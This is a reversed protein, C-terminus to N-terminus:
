EDRFLTQIMKGHPDDPYPPYLGTGDCSACMGTGKCFLCQPADSALNLNVGSGHCHSCHGNGRLIRADCDLCISQKEMM